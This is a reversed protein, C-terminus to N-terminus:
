AELRWARMYSDSPAHTTSSRPEVFPVQSSRVRKVVGVTSGTPAGSRTPRVLGVDSRAAYRLGMPRDDAPIVLAAQGTEDIEVDPVGSADVGSGNEEAM